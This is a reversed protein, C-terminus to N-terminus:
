FYKKGEFNREMTFLYQKVFGTKTQIELLSDITKQNQEIQALLLVSLFFNKIDNSGSNSTLSDNQLCQKHNLTLSLNSDSKKDVTTVTTKTFILSSDNGLKKEESCEHDQPNRENAIFEETKSSSLLM